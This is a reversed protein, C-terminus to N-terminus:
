SFLPCSRATKPQRTGDEQRRQGSRVAAAVMGAYLKGARDRGELRFPDLLDANELFVELNDQFLVM